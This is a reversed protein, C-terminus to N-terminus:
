GNVATNYAAVLDTDTLGLSNLVNTQQAETLSQQEDFRLRNNISTTMASAGTKDQEIYEAIEKLTNFTDPAGDVVKNIEATITPTVLTALEGKLTNISETVKSEVASQVQSEDVGGTSAPKNELALVRGKLAKIDAGIAKVVATIREVLTM